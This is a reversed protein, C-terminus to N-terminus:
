SGGDECDFAGGGGALEPCNGLMNGGDQYHEELEPCKGLRNGGDQYHEELEPLEM